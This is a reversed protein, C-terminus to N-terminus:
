FFVNGFGIGLFNLESLIQQGHFYRRFKFNKPIRKPHRQGFSFILLVFLLSFCISTDLM